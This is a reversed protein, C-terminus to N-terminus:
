ANEQDRYHKIPTYIYIYIIIICVALQKSLQEVGDKIIEAWIEYKHKGMGKSSSYYMYYIHTYMDLHIKISAFLPLHLTYTYTNWYQLLDVIM